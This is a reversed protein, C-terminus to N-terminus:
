RWTRHTESVWENGDHEDIQWNVGDPIEVVKLVAYAGCAKIGLEEVVHVLVPDDRRIEWRYESLPKGSLQAYRAEAAESLGFGGHKCNIVIKQTM